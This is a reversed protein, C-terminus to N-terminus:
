QDNPVIFTESFSLIWDLMFPNWIGDNEKHGTENMAKFKTLACILEPKHNDDKYNRNAATLSIM